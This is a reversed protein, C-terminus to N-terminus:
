RNRWWILMKTPSDLALFICCAVFLVPVIWPPMDYNNVNVQRATSAEVSTTTDNGGVVKDVKEAKVEVNNGLSQEKDGVVLEASVGGKAASPILSSAAYEALATCGVATFLAIGFMLGKM